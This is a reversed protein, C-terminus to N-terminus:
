MAPRRSSPRRPRAIRAVSLPAEIPPLCGEAGTAEGAAPFHRGDTKVDDMWAVRTRPRGMHRHEALLQALSGGPPLGRLGRRLAVDVKRWTERPAEAIPGSHGAPWAGTREYHAEAWALVQDVTLPPIGAKNAVGRRRALLQALSSGGHLGRHGRALAREIASWTEEPAEAVPGSPSGPWDGTRAHHADAWALIQEETLRPLAKQNPVGREAELLQALSSDGPVGRYGRRLCCDINHWKEQYWADEVFGTDVDPWEGTRAYHADAWGLIEEEDVHPRPNLYPKNENWM